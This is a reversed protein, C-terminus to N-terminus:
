PRRPWPGAADRGAFHATGTSISPHLHSQRQPSRRGPQGTDGHRKQVAARGAAPVQAVLGDHARGDVGLQPGLPAAVGARRQVRHEGLHVADVPEVARVLGVRFQRRM